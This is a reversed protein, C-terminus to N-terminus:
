LLYKELFAPKNDDESSASIYFEVNHKESLKNLEDLFIELMDIKKNTIYTLGDIIVTEVDYNSSIIGSIFGLFCIDNSSPYDTIDIFRIKHNLDYILKRGRDIFVVDGKKERVARNAIEVLTKTKGSGKKGYIVKVM